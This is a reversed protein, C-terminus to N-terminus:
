VSVIKRNLLCIKRSTYKIANTIEVISDENSNNTKLYVLQEQLSVKASKYYALTHEKPLPNTIM